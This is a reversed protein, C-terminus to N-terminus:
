RRAAPDLLVEAVAGSMDLGLEDLWFCEGWPNLELFVWRGEPTVLLDFAGYQLGYADAMARAAAVTAAPPEVVQWVQDGLRRYDPHDQTRSADLAVTLARRGIVTLRVELRRPVEEQFIMPCADLGDLAEVDEASLRNAFVAADATAAPTFPKCIVSGGVSAVFERAARPDNGLWTRPVEFGFGPAERIQRLKSAAAKAAHPADVPFCRLAALWDTLARDCEDRMFTTLPEGHDEIASPRAYRRHWVASLDADSWTEGDLLLTAGRADYGIQFGLPYRDTLLVLPRGGRRVVAEAVARTWADQSHGVLLTANM